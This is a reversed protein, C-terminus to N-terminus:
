RGGKRGRARAAALGELTRELILDREFEAIAALVHFILKGAPTTTDIGQSIVVLDVNRTGLDLVQDVLNKVSRGLRDLKTIVLTDGPRLYDLCADLEPRRALKGSVGHDFFVRECGAADLADHQADANQDPTSVRGYGIRTM